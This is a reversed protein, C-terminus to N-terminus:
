GASNQRRMLALIPNEAEAKKAKVNARDAPSMGFVALGKMVHSWAKQMQVEAPNKVKNGKQGTIVLGEKDVIKRARIYIAIQDCLMGLATRDAVTLVGADELIPYIEDWLEAADDALWDPRPPTKVAFQVEEEQRKRGRRSGREVLAATPTKKPGRAGM